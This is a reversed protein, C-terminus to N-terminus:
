GPCRNKGVYVGVGISPLAVIIVGGIIWAFYKSINESSVEISQGSLILALIVAILVFTLIFVNWGVLISAIIRAGIMVPEEQDNDEEM